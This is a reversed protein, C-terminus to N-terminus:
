FFVAGICWLKEKKFSAQYSDKFKEVFMSLLGDLHSPLVQKKARNCLSMNVRGM